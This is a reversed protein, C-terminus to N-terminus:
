AISSKIIGVLPICNTKVIDINRRCFRIQSCCQGDVSAPLGSVCRIIVNSGLNHEVNVRNTRVAFSMCTSTIEAVSHKKAM